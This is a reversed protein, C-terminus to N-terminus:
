TDLKRLILAMAAAGAFYSIFVYGNSFLLSFDKPDRRFLGRNLFFVSFAIALLSIVLVANGAQAFIDKQKGSLQEAVALTFVTGFVGTVIWLVIVMASSSELRTVIDTFILIIQLVFNAICVAVTAIVFSVLLAAIKKM